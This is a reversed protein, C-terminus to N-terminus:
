DIKLSVPIADKHCSQQFTGNFTNKVKLMDRRVINAGKALHYAESDKEKAPKVMEGIDEKLVLVDRRQAIATLDPFSTLIREWLRSTNIRAHELELEELKSSFLKALESMKLVTVDEGELKEDICSVVQTFALEDLDSM